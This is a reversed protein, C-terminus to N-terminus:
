HSKRVISLLFRGKKYYSGLKFQRVLPAVFAEWTGWEVGSWSAEWKVGSWEVRKGDCFESWKHLVGGCKGGSRWRM